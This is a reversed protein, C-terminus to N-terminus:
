SANEHRPATEGVEEREGHDDQDHGNAHAQRRGFSGSRRGRRPRRFRGFGVVIRRFQQKVLAGGRLLMQQLFALGSGRMVMEQLRRRGARFMMEKLFPRRLVGM